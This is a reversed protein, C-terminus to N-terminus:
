CSTDHSQHCPPALHICVQHTNLKICLLVSDPLNNAVVQPALTQQPQQLCIQVPPVPQLLAVEEQTLAEQQVQM